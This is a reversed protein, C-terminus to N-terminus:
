GSKAMEGNNLIRCKDHESYEKRVKELERRDVPCTKLDWCHKAYNHVSQDISFQGMGAINHIAFEAWLHPQLYLEEVKKQTDYYSGLDNLVFYKDSGEGNHTELLTNFLSTLVHHEEETQAFSHDKLSDVAKKIAENHMYVDWPNYTGKQRMEANESAKKGFSFPWWRNSISERMEITSGDETGITLAGNIALKMNGTGSAEWGAASIQVSLDAAPIIVEARSVNYNEVFIVRLRSSVQPDANIKRAVCYISQIINKAIEYGPAAKGAFLVMRPVKRSQLDHELEHYLMIVHLLNMLQRKYEHIRKIHVEFLADEGLCSMKGVVHGLNNRIPNKEEIFHILRRKNEKKIELFERQAGPDAASEALKQIHLFDTIWSRGIKKSIWGALGPNAFLLWRRQTVGNTVNVFKEPYMEYFDKFIVHKLIDTHLAAVGNVRHSGFISLHAMRIQGGEIMSMSQVKGENGPYKKRISDCLVTNLREIIRYHVPLLYQVRNQNWEELAEKLITHNTYSFCATVIDWAEEWGYHHNKLLIRMLESIALAPHTDNIQIRVKDAFSSMDPYHHLHTLVIDQISASSLLFEQKLRVRKGTEHNDNPYLVDTLCTNEAAQDLQGANYRQLQFNRPSEKTTWLRLTGVTFDVGEKYGIIPIDYANARVEEFDIVDSVEVGKQNVYPVVRGAYHVTVAHHDRRFEWPNEHLLWVDPREVQKGDWIEQDFIGYQYRLGYGVAPYQQTALSDLLCSALRGLGGNGIGPDPEHFLLHDIDRNMRKLVLKVLANANINTINNGMLRGPMYEMCLYYLTRVRSNKYTHATATWNIMIEERLTLAFARYYEEANAEDITVGMTTILYHKIKNELMEAQYELYTDM